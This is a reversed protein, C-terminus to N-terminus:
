HWHLRWSTYTENRHNVTSKITKVNIKADCHLIENPIAWKRANDVFADRSVDLCVHSFNTWRHVQYASTMGSWCVSDNIIHLLSKRKLRYHLGCVFQDITKQITTQVNSYINRLSNRGLTSTSDILRMCNLTRIGSLLENRNSIALEVATSATNLATAAFTQNDITNSARQDDVLLNNDCSDSVTAALVRNSITNPCGGLLRLWSHLL